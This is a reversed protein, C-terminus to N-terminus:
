TRKCRNKKQELMEILSINESIISLEKLSNDEQIQEKYKQFEKSDYKGEEILQREKNLIKEECAEEVGRIFESLYFMDMNTKDEVKRIVM